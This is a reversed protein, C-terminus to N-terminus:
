QIVLKEVKANSSTNKVFYVGSNLFSVDITKEGVVEFNMVEKGNIDLISYNGNDGKVTAQVSAPNPFLEFSAIVEEKIGSTSEAYVINDLAFYMPTNVGWEGVDSSFFEFTLKTIGEFVSLDAEKWEKLIYHDEEDESTFDALDFKVVGITDEGNIGYINFYFYDEDGNEGFKKGFGDGELMSFYAYTTNTFEASMVDVETEFTIEGTPTYVAYNESEGAGIATIASYQNTFDGITDNRMNSYSFGSSVGWEANYDVSFIAGNSTFSGAEDAGNYYSDTELELDEFDVTIEQAQITLATLLAGALFYFKKM